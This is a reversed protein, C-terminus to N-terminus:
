AASGCHGARQQADFRYQMYVGLPMQDGHFLNAAAAGTQIRQDFVKLGGGVFIVVLHRDKDAVAVAQFVALIHHVLDFGVAYLPDADAVDARDDAGVAAGAGYGEEEEAARASNNKGM